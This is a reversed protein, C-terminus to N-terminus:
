MFSEASPVPARSVYWYLVGVIALVVSLALAIRSSTIEEAPKVRDAPKRGSFMAKILDEKKIVRHMIVAVIHLLVAGMIWYFLQRHLSTLALSRDNSIYGYLPGFNLIEDNAFLGSVSQALMGALLVIVMMAGLPNHGAHRAETARLTALLFRITHLPGRIFNWFRAHYTGVVGWVIRFGVLVVVAYGFWVHYQFYDIGARHSVYAGIVALVLSWHFIRVPIDWVRRTAPASPDTSSAQRESLTASMETPHSARRVGPLRTDPQSDASEPDVTTM